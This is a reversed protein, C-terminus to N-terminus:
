TTFMKQCIHIKKSTEEFDTYKKVSSVVMIYFIQHLFIISIHFYRANRLIENCTTPIPFIHDHDSLHSVRIIVKGNKPLKKLIGEGKVIM